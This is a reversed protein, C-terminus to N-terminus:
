WKSLIKGYMQKKEDDFRQVRLIVYDDIKFDSDEYQYSYSCMCVAGDPLNCFVGGAYKGSIM